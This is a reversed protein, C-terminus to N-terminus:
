TASQVISELIKYEERCDECMDLHQQILPMLQSVDEGRAAMEVFQDLVAFVEDCTLEVEQTNALMAMVKQMKESKDAPIKNQPSAPSQKKFAFLRQIIQKFKM